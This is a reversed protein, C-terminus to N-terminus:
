IWTIKVKWKVWDKYKQKTMEDDKLPTGLSGCYEWTLIEELAEMTKEFPEIIRRSYARDTKKVDEYTPIYPCNELLNEITFIRYKEKKNQNRHFELLNSVHTLLPAVNPFKNIDVRLALLPLDYFYGMLQFAFSPTFEIVIDKRHNDDDFRIRGFLNMYDFKKNGKKYSLRMRTLINAAKEIEEIATQRHTIKRKSMYEDIPLSVTYKVEEVREPKLDNVEKLKNSMMQFFMNTNVKYVEGENYEEIEVGIKDLDIRAKGTKDISNPKKNIVKPLESTAPNGFITM